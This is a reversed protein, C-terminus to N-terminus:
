LEATKRTRPLLLMAFMASITGRTTSSQGALAGYDKHPNGRALFFRFASYATHTTPRYGEARYPSAAWDKATRGIHTGRVVGAM